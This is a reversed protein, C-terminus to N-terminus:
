LDPRWKGSKPLATLEVAHGTKSFDVASSHLEALKICEPDLTGDARQDALIKHRTATVGLHDTRMFDVFFAAMDALEVERDLELPPIRSYDAPEFTRVVGVIEPDWILHFVDGDLDGGSLKSSLPGVFM